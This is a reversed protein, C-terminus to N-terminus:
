ISSVNLIVHYEVSGLHKIMFRTGNADVVFVVFQITGKFVVVFEM